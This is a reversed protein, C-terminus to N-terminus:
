ASNKIWRCKLLFFFVKVTLLMKGKSVHSHLPFHVRITDPPISLTESRSSSASLWACPSSVGGGKEKESVGLALACSVKWRFYECILFSNLIQSHLIPTTSVSFCSPCTVFVPHFVEEGGGKGGFFSYLPSCPFKRSWRLLEQSLIM